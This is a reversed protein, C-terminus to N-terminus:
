GNDCYVPWGRYWSFSSEYSILHNHDLNQLAKAVLMTQLVLLTKTNPDNIRTRPMNVMVTLLRDM